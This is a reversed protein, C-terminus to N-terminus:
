LYQEGAVSTQGLVQPNNVEELPVLLGEGRSLAVDDPSAVHRQTVRSGSVKMGDASREYRCKTAVADV